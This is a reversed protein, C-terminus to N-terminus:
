AGKQHAQAAPWRRRLRAMDVVRRVGDEITVYSRLAGVTMGLEQAVTAYTYGLLVGCDDYIPRTRPKGTTARKLPKLPQINRLRETHVVRRVGHQTETYRRLTSISVYLQNAVAQLNDGLLNGNEDYISLKAPDRLIRTTGDPSLVLRRLVTGEAMNLAKGVEAASGGLYCGDADVIPVYRSALGTVVRLRCSPRRRSLLRDSVVRRDDHTTLHKRVVGDSQAALGLLRTLEEVTYALLRGRGDYIPLEIRTM